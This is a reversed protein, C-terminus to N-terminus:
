MMDMFRQDARYCSLCLFVGDACRNDWGDQMTCKICCWGSCDECRYTTTNDTNCHGCKGIKIIGWMENWCSECTFSESEYNSQWSEEDDKHCCDKCNFTQCLYCEHVMIENDNCKACSGQKICIDESKECICSSNSICEGGITGDSKDM